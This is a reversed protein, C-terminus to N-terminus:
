NNIDPQKLRAEEEETLPVGARSIQEYVTITGSKYEVYLTTDDDGMNYAILTNVVSGSNDKLKLEGNSKSYSYDFQRDSILEGDRYVKFMIRNEPSINLFEYYDANHQATFRPHIEETSKWDGILQQAHKLQSKDIRPNRKAGPRQRAVKEPDQLEEEADPRQPPKVSPPPPLKDSVVSFSVKNVMREEYGMTSERGIIRAVENMLDPVAVGSSPLGGGTLVDAESDHSLELQRAADLVMRRVLESQEPTMEPAAALESAAASAAPDASATKQIEQQEPQASQETAAQETEEEPCGAALLLLLCGTIALTVKLYM